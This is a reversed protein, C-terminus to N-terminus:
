DEALASVPVPNKECPYGLAGKKNSHIVESSSDLSAPVYIRSEAPLVLRVVALVWDCDPALTALM